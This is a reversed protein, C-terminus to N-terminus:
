PRKIDIIIKGRTRKTQLHKHAAVIDELPYHADIVPRLKGADVWQALLELDRITSEVVVVYARKSGFFRTRAMDFYNRPNPVTTVYVGGRKLRQSVKGFSLNGFVDFIIDATPMAETVDQQTYDIVTDAGLDRVMDANRESCIATIQAGYNRAIQVAFTGVGGSAGNIVVTNGAQINACDRLSQLATMSALPIAAAEDLPISQPAPAVEAASVRVYDAHAGGRWGNIMGYVADGATVHTIGDGVAVVHGAFDSGLAIPFDRGTVVKFRGKRVFTDKPNAAAYDVAVLVQGAGAEPVPREAVKLVDFGGYANIIVARMTEQEPM